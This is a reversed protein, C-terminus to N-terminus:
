SQGFDLSLNYSGPGPRLEDFLTESKFRKDKSLFGKRERLDELGVLNLPGSDNFEISRYIPSKKMEEDKNIYKLFKEHRDDKYYYGPGINSIDKKIKFDRFVNTQFPVRNPKLNNGHIEPSIYLGPGIDNNEPLPMTNRESRNVFAM